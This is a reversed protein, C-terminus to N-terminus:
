PTPEVAGSGKEVQRFFWEDHNVLREVAERVLSQTDRGEEAAKRELKAELEPSLNVEM